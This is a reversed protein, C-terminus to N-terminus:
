LDLIATIVTARETRYGQCSPFAPTIRDIVYYFICFVESRLPYFFYHQCSNIKSIKPGTGLGQWVPFIEIRQYIFQFFYFANLTITNRGNFWVQQRVLDNLKYGITILEHRMKM